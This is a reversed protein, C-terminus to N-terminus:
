INLDYSITQKENNFMMTRKDVMERNGNLYERIEIFWDRATIAPVNQFIHHTKSQLKFDTPHGMLYLLEQNTFSRIETPHLTNVVNKGIVANIAKTGYYKVSDDWFGKNNALKGKIFELKRLKYVNLNEDSSAYEEFDDFLDYKTIVGWVGVCEELIERWNEFRMIYHLMYDYALGKTVEDTKKYPVDKLYEALTPGKTRYFNFIPLQNGKIFVYFTRHRHQPVGHFFTNTKIFMLSYGSREAFSWLNSRVTEGLNTFLGPANEGIIVKPKIFKLTLYLSNYIWDNQPANAGRIRTSTNLMSLGACPPVCSVVDVYPLNFEDMQKEWGTIDDGQLYKIPVNYNYRYSTENDKFPEFSLDWTTESGFAMRQGIAMGGILSIFTGHTIVM